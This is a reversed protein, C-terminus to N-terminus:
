IFCYLLLNRTKLGKCVYLLGSNYNDWKIRYLCKGSTPIITMVAKVNLVLTWSSVQDQLLDIRNSIFNPKGPPGTTFFGGSSYPSCSIYTQTRPWSSGRSFSIAVWELIRAQLIQHVSSGALSYDMPNCLTLGLQLSKAHMCQKGDVVTHCFM